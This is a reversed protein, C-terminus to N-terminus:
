EEDSVAVAQGNSAVLRPAAPVAYKGGIAQASELRQDKKSIYGRAVPQNAAKGRLDSAVREASVTDLMRLSASLAAANGALGQQIQATRLKAKLRALLVDRNRTLHLYHKRLTPVSIGLTKAVERNKMGSALLVMINIINEETPKHEPRGAKRQDTDCPNGFLDFDGGM